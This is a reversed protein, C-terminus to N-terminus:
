RRVIAMPARIEEDHAVTERKLRPLTRASNM